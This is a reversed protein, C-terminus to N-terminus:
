WPLKQRKESLNFLKNELINIKENEKKQKYRIVSSSEM